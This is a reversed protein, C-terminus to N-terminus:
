HDTEDSGALALMEAILGFSLMDQMHRKVQEILVSRTLRVLSRPRRAINRALEWARDLLAEQAVLEAYLGLELAKQASITEGTILFYRGRNLGLLLPMVVHMGDGPVLGAPFHASDQIDTTDTALVIDALLPLEGHRWAPGNIASIVPVEIELFNMILARGERIIRDALAYQFGNQFLAPKDSTVRPGSFESGCGTLIVATNEPDEAINRFADPLESHADLSWQLSNGATHLTVQLIGDHREMKVNRYQNRYQSFDSMNTEPSM